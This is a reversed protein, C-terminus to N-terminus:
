VDVKYWMIQLDEQVKAIHQETVRNKIESNEEKLTNSEKEITQDEPDDQMQAKINRTIELIELDTIKKHKLIYNKQNLLLKADINRRSNRNIQKWLDHALKYKEACTTEKVYRFCWVVEKTEEKNWRIRKNVEKETHEKDGIRPPVSVPGHETEETCNGREAYQQRAPKQRTRSRTYYETDTDM